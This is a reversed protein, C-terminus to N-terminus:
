FLRPQALTEEQPPRLMWTLDAAAQLQDLLGWREKVLSKPEGAGVIVPGVAALRKLQAIVRAL